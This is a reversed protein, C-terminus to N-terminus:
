TAKERLRLARESGFAALLLRALRAPLSAILSVLDLLPDRVFFRLLNLHVAWPVPPERPHTAPPEEFWRTYSGNLEAGLGPGPARSSCVCVPPAAHGSSGRSAPPEDGSHPLTGGLHSCAHWHFAPIFLVDGAELVVQHSPTRCPPLAEASAM